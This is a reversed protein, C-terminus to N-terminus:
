CFEAYYNNDAIGFQVQSPFPNCGMNALSVCDVAWDLLENPLLYCERHGNNEITLNAQEMRGFFGVSLVKYIRGDDCVPIELFQHKTWDKYCKAGKSNYFTDDNSSVPM